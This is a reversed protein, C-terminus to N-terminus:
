EHPKSKQVEKEREHVSHILFPLMVFFGMIPPDFPTGSSFFSFFFTIIFFVALIKYEKFYKIYYYFVKYMFIIYIILGFIGSYLLVSLFPNHPYDSRTKDNDFYYGYWNLFNFGGGFIREQWNYEKKYIQWAFQWRVYRIDSFSNKLSDIVINAKYGFYVTDESIFKAVWNRIPDKDTLTYDVNKQLFLPFSFFSARIFRSHNPWNKLSIIPNTDIIKINKLNCRNLTPNHFDKLLMSNTYTSTSNNITDKIIEIEPYAFIVKGTLSSFDEVGFKSFYLFVSTEGRAGNVNISLKQWKGKNELDYHCQTYSKDSSYLIAWTGNFDESVYCYVSANITDNESIFSRGILTFSYANGDWTNANCTSDMLYGKSEAPVIEINDGTLPFITKHIRTGWISDPDKPDFSPNHDTPNLSASWIINYFEEYSNNDYLISSYRHLAYAIKQQTAVVNKSGIFEITKRKFLYNTNFTFYYFFVSLTFLSIIYFLTAKGFTKIITNKRFISLLQIIVLVTIISLLLLFARRSGTFFICISFLLLLFNYIGKRLISIPKILLYFISIIGYIVPLLAFNIDIDFNGILSDYSLDSTPFAPADSFFNFSNGLLSISILFAFLIILDIFINLFLSLEKKRIIILQMILFIFFLIITSIIDKFISLYLKNSVLFWIILIGLLILLLCYDRIFYKITLLLNRYKPIAYIIIGFFLLIFPFKLFPIASRCLFFLSTLCILFIEIRFNKKLLEQM